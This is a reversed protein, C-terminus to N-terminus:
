DFYQLLEYFFYIKTSLIHPTIIVVRLMTLHSVRAVQTTQGLLWFYFLLM